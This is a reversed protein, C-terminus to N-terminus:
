QSDLVSIELIPTATQVYPQIQEWWEVVVINNSGFMTNFELRDFIEASDVKWMDLHYLMGSTQHRTYPYEEIYTYTPSVLHSQIGLFKAVGQAFVTKGAGLPGNLGIILGSERVDNWHKLLLRGAIGMTEDPSSSDLTLTTTPQDVDSFQEVSAPQNADDVPDIPQEFNSPKDGTKQNPLLSTIQLIRTQPNFDTKQVSVEKVIQTSDSKNSTSSTPAHSSLRDSQGVEVTSLRIEGQRMTVPASLTTDIVTSPPNHPLEGADIILDILSLQRGSLTGLLKDLNYPRAGDSPNASTATVPRGFARVIEVILPYDPIRVGLTGFESEVGPAVKELGRSIVTVPGPLFQKYLTRAQANVEVYQEAMALDTVAISLPKGERRSKYELLKKVAVPNTADVGAGYTTETPFLVLGGAELASIAQSIVQAQSSESVLIRKM